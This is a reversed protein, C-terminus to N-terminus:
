PATLAQLQADSATADPYFRISQVWAKGTPGSFNGGVRLVNPTVPPVATASVVVAGGQGVYRAGVATFLMAIKQVSGYAALGTVGSYDYNVGGSRHVMVISNVGQIQMRNNLSGDSVTFPQSTIPPADYNRWMTTVFTGSGATYWGTLTQNFVDAARTVTAGFTPMYSTCGLFQPVTELQHGWVQYTGGSLNTTSLDASATMTQIFMSTAAGVTGAFVLRYWGNNIPIIQFSNASFTGSGVLNATGKTGTNLNIWCQFGNTGTGELVQVRVWDTNGRKLHISASYQTSATTTALASALATSAVAGDLITRGFTFGMPDTTLTSLSCNTLTWGTAYDASNLILNTSGIEALLGAFSLTSPDYEFRPGYYAASTTKIYPQPSNISRRELQVGYVRITIDISVGNAISLLVGIILQNVGAPVIDTKILRQVSSSLITGPTSSSVYTAGNFRQDFIYLGGINATSGGVIQGYVSMAYEEGPIVSTDTRDNFYIHPFCTSGSSNTGSIRIDTYGFGDSTAGIAVVEQTIGTASGGSSWRTPYSGGSGLIGVIAGSNESNKLINAPAWVLQGASNYMMANTTRTATFPFATEGTQNNYYRQNLFDLNISPEVNNLRYGSARYWRKKGFIIPNVGRVSM